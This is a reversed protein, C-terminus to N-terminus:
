VSDEGRASISKINKWSEVSSFRNIYESDYVVQVGGDSTIAGVAWIGNSIYSGNILYRLQELLNKAYKYDSLDTLIGLAKPYYKEEIYKIAQQYQESETKLKSQEIESFSETNDTVNQSKNISVTSLDSENENLNNQSDEARSCGTFLTFIILLCLCLDIKKKM